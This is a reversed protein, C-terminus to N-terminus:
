EGPMRTYIAERSDDAHPVSVTDVAMEKLFQQFAADTSSPKQPTAAEDIVITASLIQGSIQRIENVIQERTGKLSKTTVM